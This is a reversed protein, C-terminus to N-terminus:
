PVSLRIPQFPANDNAVRTYGVMQYQQAMTGDVTTATATAPNLIVRGGAVEQWQWGQTNNPDSTGILSYEIYQMVISGDTGVSSPMVTYVHGNPTHFRLFFGFSNSSVAFVEFTGWAANQSPERLTGTVAAAPGASQAAVPAASITLALLLGLVTLVTRSMAPSKRSENAPDPMLAPNGKSGKM